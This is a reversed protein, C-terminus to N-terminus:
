NLNIKNYIYIYLNMYTRNRGLECVNRAMSLWCMENKIINKMRGENQKKWTVIYNLRWNRVFEIIEMKLQPQEQISEIEYRLLKICKTQLSYKTQTCTEIQVTKPEMEYKCWFLQCSKAKVYIQVHCVDMVYSESVRESMWEIAKKM